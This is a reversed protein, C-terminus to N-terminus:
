VRPTPNTQETHYELPFVIRLIGTNNAAARANINAAGTEAAPPSTSTDFPLGGPGNECFLCFSGVVAM